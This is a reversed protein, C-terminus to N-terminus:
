VEVVMPYPVVPSDALTRVVAAAEEEKRDL